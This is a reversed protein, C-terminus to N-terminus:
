FVVIQQKLGVNLQLRLLQAQAAAQAEYIQRLRQDSAIIFLRKLAPPDRIAVPSSFLFAETSKCM